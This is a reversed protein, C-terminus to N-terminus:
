LHDHLRKEGKYESKLGHTNRPDFDKLRFDEGRTVRYPRVFRKIKRIKLSPM